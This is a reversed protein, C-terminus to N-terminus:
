EPLNLWGRISTEVVRALFGLLETGQGPQFQEPQRSGLALLAAPAARSISLRILADSRVLGAGPGFIAPDGTVDARLAVQQGPGILHDIMHPELRCVGPTEPRTPAGTTQEVGVTVVDLDLIIAVDTTLTEIFHEFSRAGLLALAAKHVRAQASLNSRGTVVLADRAAAMEALERRLKEVMFQQLDAVGDGCSRAPPTLVDLLEPHECLFTPHGRLYDVVQAASVAEGVTGEALRKGNGRKPAADRRNQSM